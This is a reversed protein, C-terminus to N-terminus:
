NKNTLQGEKRNEVLVEPFGKYFDPVGNYQVSMEAVLLDAWTVSNGVLFGSKNNKLFGTIFTFFKERAPLLLDKALAVADGPAFGVSVLFYPRVETAFDKFQDAISDVVAEEFAGKGAFGFQRAVFRAITHSQALQKGDVELVPMQEFPMEHKHKPWEQLSFGVDEFTQGALAFLQRTVEAAGRAQFYTLRYHVM